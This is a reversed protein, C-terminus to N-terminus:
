LTRSHLAAKVKPPEVYEDADPPRVLRIYFDDIVFENEYQDSWGDFDVVDCGNFTKIIRIPTFIRESMPVMDKESLRRFQPPTELNKKLRNEEEKKARTATREARSSEIASASILSERLANVSSSKWASM